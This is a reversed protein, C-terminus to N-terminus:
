KGECEVCGSRPGHMLHYEAYDDALDLRRARLAAVGFGILLLIGLFHTWNM